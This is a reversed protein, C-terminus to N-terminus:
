IRQRQIHRFNNKYISRIHILQKTLHTMCVKNAYIGGNINDITDVPKDIEYKIVTSLRRQVDKIEARDPNKVNTIQTQYEM